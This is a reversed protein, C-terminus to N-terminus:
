GRESAPKIVFDYSNLTHAVISEFAIKGNWIVSRSALPKYGIEQLQRVWGNQADVLNVTAGEGILCLWEDADATAGRKCSEGCRCM